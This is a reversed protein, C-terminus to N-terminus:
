FRSVGFLTADMCIRFTAVNLESRLIILLKCVITMSQKEVCEYITSIEYYKKNKM